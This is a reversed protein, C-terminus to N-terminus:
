PEKTDKRPQWTRAIARELAAALRPDVPALEDALNLLFPRLDTLLIAFEDRKLEFSPGIDSM